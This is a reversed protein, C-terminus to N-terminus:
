LLELVRGALRTPKILKRVSPANNQTKGQPKDGPHQTLNVDRFADSRKSKELQKRISAGGFQGGQAQPIKGFFAPV